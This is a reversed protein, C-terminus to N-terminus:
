AAAKQEARQRRRTQRAYERAALKCLPDIPEWRRHHRCYAPWSGCTPSPAPYVAIQELLSMRARAEAAAISVLEAEKALAASYVYEPPRAPLDNANDEANVADLYRLTDDVDVTTVGLTETIWDLSRGAAIAQEIRTRTRANM